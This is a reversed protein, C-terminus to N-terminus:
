RGEYADLWWRNLEQGTIDLRMMDALYWAIERLGSLEKAKWADVNENLVMNKHPHAPLFSYEFDIRTGNTFSNHQSLSYDHGGQEHLTRCSRGLKTLLMQLWQAKDNTWIISREKDSFFALDAIRWHVPSSYVYM